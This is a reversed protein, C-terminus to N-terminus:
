EDKNLGSLHRLDAIYQKIIDINGNSSEQEIPTIEYPMYNYFVGAKDQLYIVVGEQFKLIEGNPGKFKM